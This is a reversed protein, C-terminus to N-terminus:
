KAKGEREEQEIIQLKVLNGNNNNEEKSLMTYENWTFLYYWLM